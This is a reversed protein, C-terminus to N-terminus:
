YWNTFLHFYISREGGGSGLFLFGKGRLNPVFSEVNRNVNCPSIRALATLCSLSILTMCIPFSPFRYEYIIHNNVYSNRWGHERQPFQVAGGEEM